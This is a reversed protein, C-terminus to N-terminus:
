VFCVISSFHSFDIYNVFNNVFNFVYFNHTCLYKGLWTWSLM